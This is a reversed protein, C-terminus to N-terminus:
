EGAGRGTVAPRKAAERRRRVHDQLRRVAADFAEQIATELERHPQGTIAIEEGPVSIDVRVNYVIPAGTAFRHPVDIMVRCGAIRDYRLGLKGVYRHVLARATDSLTLNRVSLRLPTQM